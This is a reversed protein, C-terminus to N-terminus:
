MEFTIHLECKALLHSAKTISFPIIMVATRADVWVRSRSTGPWQIEFGHAFSSTHSPVTRSMRHELTIELSGPCLTLRWTGTSLQPGNENKLQRRPELGASGFGACPLSLEYNM